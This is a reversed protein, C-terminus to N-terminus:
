WLSATIANVSLYLKQIIRISKNIGHTLSCLPFPLKMIIEHFSLVLHWENCLFAENQRASLNNKKWDTKCGGVGGWGGMEVGRFNSWNWIFSVNLYRNESNIYFSQVSHYNKNCKNDYIWTIGIGAHAISKAEFSHVITLFDGDM